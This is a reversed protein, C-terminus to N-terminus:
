AREAEGGAPRSFCVRMAGEGSASVEIGLEALIELLGARESDCAIADPWAVRFPSVEMCLTKEGDLIRITLPFPRKLDQKTATELLSLMVLILKSRDALVNPPESTFVEYRVNVHARRMSFTHLLLAQKLVTELSIVIQSGKSPRASILLADLLEAAQSTASMIERLKERSGASVEEELEILESYNLITGLSNNLEHAIGNVCRGVLRERLGAPEQVGGEVADGSEM